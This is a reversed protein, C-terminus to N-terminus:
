AHQTTEPKELLGIHLNLVKVEQYLDWVEHLDTSRRIQRLTRDRLYLLQVLRHTENVNEM